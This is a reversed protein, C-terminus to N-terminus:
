QKPGVRGVLTKLAELIGCIRPEFAKLAEWQPPTTYSEGLRLLKDVPERFLPLMGVPVLPLVKEATKEPGEQGQLLGIFQAFQDDSLVAQRPGAPNMPPATRLLSAPGQPADKPISAPPQKIDPSPGIPRGPGPQAEPTRPPPGSSPPVPREVGPPTPFPFIRGRPPPPPSTAGPGKVGERPSPPNPNGEGAKVRAVLDPGLSALTQALSGGFGRAVEKIYPDISSFFSQIASPEEDELEEEGKALVQGIAGVAEPALGTQRMLNTVEAVTKIGEIVPNGKRPSDKRELESKVFALLQATLADNVTVPQQQAPPTRSEFMRLLNGVLALTRDQESPGTAAPPPPSQIAPPRAFDLLVKAMGTFNELTRAQDQVPVAPLFQRMQEAIASPIAELTQKLQVIEQRQGALQNELLRLYSSWGAGEIASGKAEGSPEKGPGEAKAGQPSGSVALSQADAGTSTPQVATQSDIVFGFTIPEADVGKPPLLTAKYDGPGFLKAVRAEITEIEDLNVGLLGNPVFGFRGDERRRSLKLQSIGGWLKKALAIVKRFARLEQNVELRTTRHLNGPSSEPSPMPRPPPEVSIRGAGAPANQPDAPGAYGDKEAGDRQNVKALQEEAPLVEPKTEVDDEFM